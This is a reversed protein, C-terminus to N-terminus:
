GELETILLWYIQELQKDDAEKVADIIYQIIQERCM